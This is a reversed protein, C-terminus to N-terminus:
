EYELSIIEDPAAVQGLTDNERMKRSNKRVDLLLVYLWLHHVLDQFFFHHMSSM